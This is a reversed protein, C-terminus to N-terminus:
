GLHGRSRRQGRHRHDHLGPPVEEDDDIITGTGEDDSEDSLTVTFTAYDPLIAPTLGETPTSPTM